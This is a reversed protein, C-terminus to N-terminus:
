EMKQIKGASFYKFYIYNIYTYFIVYKTVILKAGNVEHNSIWTGFHILRQARIFRQIKEDEIEEEKFDLNSFTKALPLFGQMDRDEPLPIKQDALCWIDFICM